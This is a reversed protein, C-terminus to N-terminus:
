RIFIPVLSLAGLVIIAATVVSVFRSPSIRLFLKYGLYHGLVVVPLLLLSVTGGASAAVWQGALVLVVLGLINLSLLAATVTDRFSDTSLPQRTLGILVPPGNISTATTTFGGTLGGVVLKLYGPATRNPRRRRVFQFVGAIIVLVGVALRTADKPLVTLVIIGLILGPIAALLLPRIMRWDIRVQRHELTLVFMRTATGLLLLATVAEAPSLVAFFFPAAVLSFGFAFVTQVAAGALTAFGLIGISTM